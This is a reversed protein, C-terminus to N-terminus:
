IFFSFFFTVFSIFSAEFSCRSTVYDNFFYEFGVPCLRKSPSSSAITSDYIWATLERPVRTFENRAMAAHMARIWFYGLATLFMSLLEDSQVFRRNSRIPYPRRIFIDDLTLIGSSSLYSISNRNWWSITVVIPFCLIGPKIIMFILWIGSFYKGVLLKVRTSFPAVDRVIYPPLLLLHM